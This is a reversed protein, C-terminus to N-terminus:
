SRFFKKLSLRQQVPQRDPGYFHKYFRRCCWQKWWDVGYTCAMGLLMGIVLGQLISIWLESEM